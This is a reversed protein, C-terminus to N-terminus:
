LILEVVNKALGSAKNKTDLFAYTLMGQTLAVSEFASVRATLESQNSIERRLAILDLRDNHSQLVALQFKFWHQSSGSTCPSRSNLSLHFRVYSSM